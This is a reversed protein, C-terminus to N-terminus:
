DVCRINHTQIIDHRSINQVDSLHKQINEPSDIYCEQVSLVVVECYLAAPWPADTLNQTQVQVGVSNTLPSIKCYLQLVLLIEVQNHLEWMVFIQSSM